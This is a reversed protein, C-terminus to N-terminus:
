AAKQDDNIPPKLETGPTADTASPLVTVDSVPTATAPVRAAILQAHQHAKRIRRLLLIILVIVAVARYDPLVADWLSQRVVRATTAPSLQDYTPNTIRSTSSTEPGNWGARAPAFDSAPTQPQSLVEKVDPRIPTAEADISVLPVAGFLLLLSLVVRKISESGPM